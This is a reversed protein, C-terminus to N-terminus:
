PRPAETVRALEPRKAKQALAGYVSRGHPLLHLELAAVQKLISEDPTFCSESGYELRDITTQQLL